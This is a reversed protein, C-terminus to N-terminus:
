DRAPRAVIAQFRPDGRLSGREVLAGACLYMARVDDPERALQRLAMEIGRRQTAELETARDGGRYLMAMLLPVQYDEPRVAMAKTWLREAEDRRGRRVADARVDLVGGVARPNLRIAAEFETAAAEHERGLALAAGRAAHVEALDPALELARRSAAEARRRDEEGRRGM